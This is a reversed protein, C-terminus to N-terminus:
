QQRFSPLADVAEEHTRFFGVTFHAPLGRNTCGVVDWIVAKKHARCNALQYTLGARIEENGIVEVHPPRTNTYKRCTHEVLWSKEGWPEVFIVTPM